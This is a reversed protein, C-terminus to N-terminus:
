ELRSHVFESLVSEDEFNWNERADVQQALSKYMIYSEEIEKKLRAAGKGVILPSSLVALKSAVALGANATLATIPFDNPIIEAVADIKNTLIVKQGDRTRVLKPIHTSRDDMTACSKIRRFFLCTSPYKYVFGWNPYDEPYTEILELIKDGSTADLDMEELASWFASNFHTNLVKCENSTDTEPNAIQRSLLLAGLALNYIAAKTYM